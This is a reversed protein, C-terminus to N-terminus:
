PQNSQRFDRVTQAMREKLEKAWINTEKGTIGLIGLTFDKVLEIRAADPDTQTANEPQPQSPGEPPPNSDRKSAVRTLTIWDFEFETLERYLDTVTVIYRMWDSSFGASRDILNWAGAVGLLVLAVEAAFSRPNSFYKSAFEFEPIIIMLVPVIVALAGFFYTLGHLLRAFAKKTRKKDLYWDIASNALQRAFDHLEALNAETDAGKGWNITPFPLVTCFQNRRAIKLDDASLEIARTPSDAPKAFRHLINRLYRFSM